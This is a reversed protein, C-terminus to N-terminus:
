AYAIRLSIRVRSDVKEAKGDESVVKYEGGTIMATVYKVSKTNLIETVHKTDEDPIYGVHEGAIYVMLADKKYVKGDDFAIKVPKNIYNYHYIRKMVKGEAVLTKGAKRWDPNANELRKIELAHHHLGVVTFDEKVLKRPQPEEDKDSTKKKLLDFIGM